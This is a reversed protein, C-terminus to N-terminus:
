LSAGIAALRDRFMQALAEHKEIMRRLCSACDADGLGYVEVDKQAEVIAAYHSQLCLQGDVDGRYVHKTM